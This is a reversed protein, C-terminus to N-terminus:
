KLPVVMIKLYYYHSSSSSHCIIMNESTNLMKMKGYDLFYQLILAGDVVLYKMRLTKPRCHQMWTQSLVNRLVVVIRLTQTLLEEGSCRHM